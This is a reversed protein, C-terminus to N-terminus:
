LLRNQSLISQITDQKLFWWFLDRQTEYLDLDKQTYAKRRNEFMGWDEVVEGMEGYNVKKGMLLGILDEDIDEEASQEPEEGEFNFYFNDDLTNFSMSKEYAMQRKRQQLFKTMGAFDIHKVLQQSGLLHDCWKSHDASMVEYFGLLLTTALTALQRRRTPLSVNKALKRIAYHYHKLSVWTPKDQLKAIHLSSLALMAHMLAHNRLAVTPLTYAWLHQQSKPVPQGQLLLSPNAPHREYMSIGPAVVNLFHTFIAAAAPDNLPSDRFSPIYTALMDPGFNEIVSHYTRVRTDQREQNAHLAMMTQLNGEAIRRQLAGASLAAAGGSDAMEDDDDSVDFPDDFDDEEMDDELYSRPNMVNAGHSLTQSIPQSNAAAWYSNDSDGASPPTEHPTSQIDSSNYHEQSVNTSPSRNAPPRPGFSEARSNNINASPAPDVIQYQQWQLNQGHSYTDTSQAHPGRTEM